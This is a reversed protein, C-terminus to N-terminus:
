GYPYNESKPDRKPDKYFLPALSAQPGLFRGYNLDSGM